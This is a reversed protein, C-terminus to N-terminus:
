AYVMSLQGDPGELGDGGGRTERGDGPKGFRGGLNSGNGDVWVKNKLMLLLVGRRWLLACLHTGFDLIDHKFSLLEAMKSDMGSQAAVQEIVKEVIVLVRNISYDIDEAEEEQTEKTLSKWSYIWAMWLWQAEKLIMKAMSEAVKIPFQSIALM